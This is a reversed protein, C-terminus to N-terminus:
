RFSIKRGSLTKATTYRTIDQLLAEGESGVKAIKTVVCGKEARARWAEIEESKGSGGAGLRNSLVEWITRTTQCGNVVYPEVLKYSGHSAVEFDSVTITIGNNFLGFQEPMDRLTRQMGKNVKVRGGLFRRVNKEFLQDLNGTQSRYAKLFGYLNTLSVSGVLLDNGAEALHGHLSVTLRRQAALDAEEIQNDYITRVSVAGVDFLQGLRARGLARVDNLTSQQELTLPDVTAYILKIQDQEGAAKRFNSLKEHLNGTLSSLKPRQGDLTDVVKKGESLLTVDGAFAAGYKSQILYWIDGEVEDGSESQVSRELVAVDIGGDGSGDCYTVELSEDDIDLWQSVVKHAFRQGLQVTSPQGATIDTLWSAKFEDFSVSEVMADM